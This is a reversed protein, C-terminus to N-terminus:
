NILINTHGFLFHESGRMGDKGFAKLLKFIFNKFSVFVFSVRCNSLDYLRSGGHVAGILLHEAPGVRKECSFWLPFLM